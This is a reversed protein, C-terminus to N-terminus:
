RGPALRCRLLARLVRLGDKATLKKGEDTTRARCSVPIEYIREGHLLLEAAIEPEIEFGTTRLADTLVAGRRAGPGVRSRRRTAAIGQGCTPTRAETRDHTLLRASGAWDREALIRKTGDSSGDVVVILEFDLGLDGELLADLTREVTPAENFVAMTTSVDPVAPPQNV